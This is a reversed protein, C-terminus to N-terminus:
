SEATRTPVTLLILVAVLALCSGYSFAAMPGSWQYLLGCVLSAPLAAIGSTFSYWAYGMGRRGHTVLHGVLTREAPEVLGMVLGYALFLAWAHWTANALAFGAYVLAFGCWALPLLRRAGLRDIWRGVLFNGGSKAVHCACWLLPLHAVPVGVEGARVLLFADSSNGLTFILLAVMYRIFGSSGSLRDQGAELVPVVRPGRADPLRFALLAVVLLGPLLTLLFLSRLHDPWAALFLAAILPGVAAGLNDMGRHFGFARGRLEAATTDAIMADRPPTRIGKGLRDTIRVAFLHWPLTALGILPRVLAPVSYGLVIFAKRSGGRDAVRGMWIKLLSATADACGEILGLLFRNGALFQMLFHPLLAYVMESACDNLLSAWGLVRVTVPLSAPEAKEADPKPVM